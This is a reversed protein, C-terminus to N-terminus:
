PCAETQLIEFGATEEWARLARALDSRAFSGSDYSLRMMAEVVSNGVRSREMALATAADLLASFDHGNAIQAPDLDSVSLATSCLEANTLTCGSSVSLLDSVFSDLEFSGTVALYSGPDLAKFNLRLDEVCSRLRLRAIHLALDVVDDRAVIHDARFIRSPDESQLERIAHEFADSYVISMEADHCDTLLVNSPHISGIVRDFDADCIGVVGDIGRMALLDITERLILKGECYVVQVHPRPLIFKRYLRADDAGEVLVVASQRHSARVLSVANAITAASQYQRM